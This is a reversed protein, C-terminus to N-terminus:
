GQSAKGGGLISWKQRERGKGGKGELSGSLLREYLRRFFGAKRRGSGTKRKPRDSKKRACSGEGGEDKGGRATTKRQM